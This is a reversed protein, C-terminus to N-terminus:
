VQRRAADGVFPLNPTRGLICSVLNYVFTLAVLVFVCSHGAAMIQAAIGPRGPAFIQGVILPLSLLVDLVLAQMANFRVYRSLTPNRVVCLYLAFFACFSAFPSSRYASILPVIPGMAVALPPFAAFLQYGYQVGNFFPFTYAAASILRDTAPASSYSASIKTTTTTAASFSIPFRVERLLFAARPPAQFPHITRNRPNHRLLGLLPTTTAMLATSAM